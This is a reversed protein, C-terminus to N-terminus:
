MRLGVTVPMLWSPAIADVVRHYRAEVFAQVHGALHFTLGGGASVGFRLAGRAAPHQYFYDTEAGWILYMGFPFTSPMVRALQNVAMGMVGVRGRMTELPCIGCCTGPPPNSQCMVGAFGSPLTLDFQSVFADLRWGFRDNYRRGVSAQAAFGQTTSGHFMPLDTPLRRALNLGGALSFTTQGAAAAPWALLLALGLPATKM